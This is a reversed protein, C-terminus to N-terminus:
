LIKINQNINTIIPVYDCEAIAWGNSIVIFAYCDLLISFYKRLETIEVINGIPICHSCTNNIIKIKDGIKLKM